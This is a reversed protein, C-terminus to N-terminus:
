GYKANLSDEFEQALEEVQAAQKRLERAQKKLQLVARIAAEELETDFLSLQVCLTPKKSEMRPGRGEPAEGTLKNVAM